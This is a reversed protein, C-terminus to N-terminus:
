QKMIKDFFPTTVFTSALGKVKTVVGVKKLSNLTKTVNRTKTTAVRPASRAGKAKRNLVLIKPSYLM